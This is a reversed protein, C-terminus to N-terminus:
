MLEQGPITDEESTLKELESKAATRVTNGLETLDCTNLAHIKREDDAPDLKSLTRAISLSLLAILEDEDSDVLDTLAESLNAVGFAMAFEGDEAFEDGTRDQKILVDIVAETVGHMLAIRLMEAGGLDEGLVGRLTEISETADNAASKVSETLVKLVGQTAIENAGVKADLKIYKAGLEGNATELGSQKTSLGKVTESSDVAGGVIEMLSTQPDSSQLGLAQYMNTIANNVARAITDTLSQAPDAGVLGLSTYVDAVATKAAAEAMTQADQMSIMQPTSEPSLLRDSPKALSTLTADESDDGFSFLDELEADLGDDSTASMLATLSFTHSDESSDTAPPISDEPEEGRAVESSEPEEGRVAESVEAEPITTIRAGTDTETPETTEIPEATETPEADAPEEVSEKVSETQVPQQLVPIEKASPSSIVPTEIGGLGESRVAAKAKKATKAALLRALKQQASQAQSLTAGTDPKITNGTM